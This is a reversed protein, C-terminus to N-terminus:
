RLTLSCCPSAAESPLATSASPSGLLCLARVSSPVTGCCRYMLLAPHQYCPGDVTESVTFYHTLDLTQRPLGSQLLLLWLRTQLCAPVHTQLQTQVPSTSYQLKPSPDRWAWLCFGSGPSSASVSLSTVWALASSGSSLKFPAGPGCAPPTWPPEPHPQDHGNIGTLARLTSICPRVSNTKLSNINSCLSVQFSLNYEQM